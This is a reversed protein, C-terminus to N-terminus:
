KILMLKRTASYLLKSGDRVRLSYFYIGSSLNAGDLQYLYQGTYLDQELLHRVEQGMLNYLILTVQGPSALQFEIETSPNFPNPYNQSLAFQVPVAPSLEYEGVGVSSSSDMEVRIMFTGNLQSGLSAWATGLNYYSNDPASDTDIGIAPTYSNAAWGVYFGGERIIINEVSMDKETWGQNLLLISPSGLVTGPLGSYGDDDWTYGTAISSASTSGPIYYRTRVLHSPYKEPTFKVALYSGDGFTTSADSEGDDYTIEYITATEPTVCVAASAEAEVEGFVAAVQYCYTTGNIVTGDTYSTAAIATGDDLLSYGYGGNRYVNYTAAMGGSSTLSARILWEGDPLNASGGGDYEQWVGNSAIWAHTSPIATNDVPTYTNSDISTAIVFDGSFEWGSVAFRNWIQSTVHVETEYDPTDRPVGGSMSFGAITIIDEENSFVYVTDVTTATVGYPMAYAVGTCGSVGGISAGSWANNDYYILGNFNDTSANDWSLNVLGDGAEAVLNQVVPPDDKLDVSWVHVDDIYLGSGNGGDANDDFRAQWRLRITSGAYGTLELQANGNFPDGPMYVDWGLSSAGPRALDGYDYFVDEWQYVESGPQMVVVDDANDYLLTDGADNSVLIDDIRLGTLSADDGVSWGVDSGMYFRIKITQGIYTSLDITATTWTSTGTWGPLLCGDGNAYWGYCSTSTYAPTGNLVSWLAGGDSNSSIRVNAADWGDITCGDITQAAGSYAELYYSIRATLSPNSGTVTFSPSELFQLWNDEYGGAESDACWWSKGSYAGNASTHFYLPIENTNTVQVRYYDELSNDNNGDFDPLNCWLAFNFKVVENEGTLEPIAIEPSLLYLDQDYNDDDVNFSHSPSYSSANTLSWGPDYIWGSIDGELDDFWITVTDFTARVTSNVMTERTTLEPLVTGDLMPEPLRNHYVNDALVLSGAFLVTKLILKQKM